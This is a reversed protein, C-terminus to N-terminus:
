NTGLANAVSKYSWASTQSTKKIFGFHAENPSKAPEDILEYFLVAKVQSNKKCKNIFNVTFDRQATEYASTNSMYRQGAETFWIPKNFMSAIKATIEIPNKKHSAATEMDSYWHWAVIDFNVGYSELMKLYASHLWSADVMTKAGPQKSKIGDNLGKLYAAISKFKQINYNSNVDGDGSIICKLDLENGLEYYKFYQANKSAINAGIVKATNYNESESKNYDLKSTYIMALIDIGAASTASYLEAFKTKASVSGDSNFNLDQRFVKMGMKKLMAVQQTAPISTYSQVGMSHGNVGVMLSGNSPPTTVPPTVPITEDGSSPPPTATGTAKAIVLYTSLSGAAPAAMNGGLTVTGAKFDKSFLVFKQLKADEVNIVDSIKKWTSLWTPLKSYRVDYAVYVTANQTLSFSMYSSTTYAKENMIGKIFTSGTLVSPVSKVKYTRDTYYTVGTSLASVPYTHTGVGKVTTILSSVAATQLTAEITEVAPNDNIPTPQINDEKKCSFLTLVSLSSLITIKKYYNM